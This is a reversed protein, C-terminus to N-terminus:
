LEGRAKAILNALKTTIGGTDRKSDSIDTWNKFIFELAELMEPAVAILDFDNENINECIGHKIVSGNSELRNGNDGTVKIWPGKTYKSEM